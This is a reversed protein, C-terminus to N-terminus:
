ELNTPGPNVPRPILLEVKFEGRAFAMVYGNPGLLTRTAPKSVIKLGPRGKYEGVSVDYESPEASLVQGGNLADLLRSDTTYCIVGDEFQWELIFSSEIRCNEDSLVLPQSGKPTAGALPMAVLTSFILLCSIVVNKSM